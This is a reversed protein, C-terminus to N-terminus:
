AHMWLAGASRASAVVSQQCLRFEASRDRTPRASAYRPMSPQLLNSLGDAATQVRGRSRGQRTRSTRRSGLTVGSRCRAARRPQRLRPLGSITLAGPQNGDETPGPGSTLNYQMGPPLNETINILNLEDKLDHDFLLSVSYALVGDADPTIRIEGTLQDGPAATITNGGPTGAGTTATWVLGVKVFAQVSAPAASILGLVVICAASQIRKM